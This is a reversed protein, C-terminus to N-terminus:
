ILLTPNTTITKSKNKRHIKIIEIINMALNVIYFAALFMLGYHLLDSFITMATSTSGSTSTTSTSAYSLFKKFSGNSYKCIVTEIGDESMCHNCIPNSSMEKNLEKKLKKSQFYKILSLNAQSSVSKISM